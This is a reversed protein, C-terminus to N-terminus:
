PQRGGGCIHMANQGYDRWGGMCPVCVLARQGMTARLEPQNALQQLHAALVDLDRITVIFGENGDCFVDESGTNRSAIVPGRAYLECALDFTHFKGVMSLAVKM